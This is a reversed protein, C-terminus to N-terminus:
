LCFNLGRGVVVFDALWVVDFVAAVVSRDVVPFSLENVLLEDRDEVELSVVDVDEDVEMLVVDVVVEAGMLVVDVDEDALVCVMDEELVLSVPVLEALLGDVDIGPVVVTKLLLVVVVAVPQLM